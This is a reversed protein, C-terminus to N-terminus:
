GAVAAVNGPDSGELQIQLLFSGRRNASLPFSSGLALFTLLVTKLDLVPLSFPGGFWLWMTIAHPCNRSWSTVRVSNVSRTSQQLFLSRQTRFIDAHKPMSIRFPFWSYNLGSTCHIESLLDRTLAAPSCTLNTHLLSSLCLKLCSLLPISFM